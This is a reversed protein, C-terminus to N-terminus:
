KPVAEMLSFVSRTAYTQVLTWGAKNLLSAWEAQTREGGGAMVMMNMDLGLKPVSLADNAALVQEALFLKRKSRPVNAEELASGIAELITIAKEESWDHLVVKEIYCNTTQGAPLTSADFFDGGQFSVGEVKPASAVVSPLELVTARGKLTPFAATLDALLSGHGGGVDVISSCLSFNAGSMAVAANPERSIGTMFQAFATEYHPNEKYHAWISKGTKDDFAVTSAGKKLPAELNKWGDYHDAAGIIAAGWLSGPADKLLLRTAPTMGFRTAAPGGDSTVLHVAALMRLLRRLADPDVEAVAAIARVDSLGAPNLREMAEAIHLNAFAGLAQTVQYGNIMQMLQATPPKLAFALNDVLQSFRTAAKFVAMPPLSVGTVPSSYPAFDALSTAHLCVAVALALLPGFVAVCPGFFLFRRFMYMARTRRKPTRMTAAM